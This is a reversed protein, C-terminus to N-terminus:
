EVSETWIGTTKNYTASEIPFTGATRTVVVGSSSFVASLTYGATPVNGGWTCRQNSTNMILNFTGAERYICMKEYMTRLEGYFDCDIRTSACTIQTIAKLKGLLSFDIISNDGPALYTMVNWNPESSNIVLGGITSLVTLFNADIVNGMIIRYEATSAAPTTVMGVCRALSLADPIEIDCYELGSCNQQITTNVSTSGTLSITQLVVGEDSLVRVQQDVLSRLSLAVNGTSTCRIVIKGFVPLNGEINALLRRIICKAM